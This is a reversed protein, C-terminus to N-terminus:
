LPEFVCMTGSRMGKIVKVFNICMFIIRIYLFIVIVRFLLELPAGSDEIQRIVGAALLHTCFQTALIKLDQPTIVHRLYHGESFASVFWNILMQGPPHISFSICVFPQNSFKLRFCLCQIFILLSFKIRSQIFFVFSFCMCFLQTLIYKNKILTYVFYQFPNKFHLSFM